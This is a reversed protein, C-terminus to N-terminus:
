GAPFLIFSQLIGAALVERAEGREAYLTFKLSSSGANLVTIVDSM